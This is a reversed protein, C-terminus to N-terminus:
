STRRPSKRGDAPKKPILGLKFLRRMLMRTQELTRETRRAVEEAPMDPNDALLAIVARKYRGRKGTQMAAITTAKWEPDQWLSLKKKSARQRRLQAKDGKWAEEMSVVRQMKKVPDAWNARNRRSVKERYEPTRHAKRMNERGQPSVKARSASMVESQRQRDRKTWAVKMGCSKSCTKGRQRKGLEARCVPCVKGPYDAPVLHLGRGRRVIKARGDADLREFAQRVHPEDTGLHAAVDRALPADLAPLAALVRDALSRM